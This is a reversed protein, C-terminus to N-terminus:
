AINEDMVNMSQIIWNFVSRESKLGPPLQHAIKRELTRADKLSFAGAISAYFNILFLVQDGNFPDFIRRSPEGCFVDGVPKEEREWRYHIFCMDGKNFIM